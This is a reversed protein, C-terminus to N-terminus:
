ESYGARGELVEDIMKFGTIKKVLFDFTPRFEHVITAGLSNYLSSIFICELEDHPMTPIEETEHKKL